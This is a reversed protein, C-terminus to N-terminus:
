SEETDRRAVDPRTSERALEVRRPVLGLLSREIREAAERLRVSAYPHSEDLENGLVVLGDIDQWVNSIAADDRRIAMRRIMLNVSSVMYQLETVSCVLELEDVNGAGVRYLHAAIERVPAIVTRKIGWWLVGYLLVGMVLVHTLHDLFLESWLLNPERVHQFTGYSVMAVLLSFATWAAVHQGLTRESTKM